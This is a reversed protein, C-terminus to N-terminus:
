KDETSPEGRRCRPTLSAAVASGMTIFSADPQPMYSESAGDVPYGSDELARLAEDARDPNKFLSDAARAMTAELSKVQLVATALNNLCDAAPM